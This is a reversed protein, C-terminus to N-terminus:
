LDGIIIKVKRELDPLHNKIIQWVEDVDVGFYDHAIMNRFGKIKNWEINDHNTKFEDSIRDIMEGIVIFNMLVADLIMNKEFLEKPTRVNKIYDTIKGAADLIGYLSNRDKTLM